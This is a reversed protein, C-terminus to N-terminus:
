LIINSSIIAVKVELTASQLLGLKLDIVRAGLYSKM